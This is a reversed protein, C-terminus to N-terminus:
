QVGVPFDYLKEGVNTDFVTGDLFKGTYVVYATDNVQPARGTGAVQEHFYLGSPKLDFNITDNSQLFKDISERESKEYKAAPNCSHLSVILVVALVILVSKHFKNIM